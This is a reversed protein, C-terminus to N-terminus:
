AHATQGTHAFALLFIPLPLPLRPPPALPLNTNSPLEALLHSICSAHRCSLMHAPPYHAARSMRIRCRSCSAANLALEKESVRPSMCTQINFLVHLPQKASRPNTANTGSSLALSSPHRVRAEMLRYTLAFLRLMRTFLSARLRSSNNIRM